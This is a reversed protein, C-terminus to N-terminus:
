ESRDFFLFEGDDLRVFARPNGTENFFFLWGLGEFLFLSPYVVPSTFYWADIM